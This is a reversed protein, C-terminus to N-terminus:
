KGRLCAKIFASFLPHPHLPRAKFEPHFQTGLFFPHISKPLEVIEMLRGDPSTGSFIMGAKEIENIYEPNVEYRHRHRESINEMNYAEYAHTGKKLIAPYAGLRMTAGYKNEALLKKQEPMIDIVVKSSKPNIEATHADTWGLVNRCFEIVALQMGYCLGLYPIKNKRAYEIAMIVGEIGSEGFGGPVIVGDYNKLESIKRVGTEYEKSNIWTLKVKVEAWYSSFKIAEIVSVYADSLTFDGTDFYKGIVAIELEKKGNKSKQVFKKWESLDDNRSKSRMHLTKLIVSGIKDKEFNLPVDYVSKIDPASIVNEPAIACAMAIKEKRRFDLPQVGRAIIMDAQVGYSNLQRAANQTPRTKMEGLTGPVPLYSVMVFMVDQPYKIKLTRAAEIFLINQYDGITGGIEILSVDSEHNDSAKIWRRIIEQTIHPIAEVCKGRYGLSREKEIVHKYIMGSTMYDDDALDIGLFREYNGLDQDTELGSDLVFVEGHETPNMNGADVNLYPDVKIPNVKFGKSQLIKGISSCAIGKGVGSMVGGIVFIYKHNKKKM